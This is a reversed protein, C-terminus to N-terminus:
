DLFSSTLKETTWKLQFRQIFRHIMVQTELPQEERRQRRSARHRGINHKTNNLSAARISLITVRIVFCINLNVVSLKVDLGRDSTTVSPSVRVQYVWCWFMSGWEEPAENEGNRNLNVKLKAPSVPLLARLCTVVFGRRGAM